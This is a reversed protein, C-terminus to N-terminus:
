TKTRKLFFIKDLQAVFIGTITVAIGVVTKVTISEEPLFYYATVATIVPVFNTFVGTKVVGLKEVVKIFLFFALLSAFIVLQLLTGILRIDPKVALFNKLGFGFFLPMFLLTGFIYQWTLITYPKYGASLKKIMVTYLIASVVALMMLAVGEPTEKFSFDAKLVMILVGAFSVAIGLINLWSVREKVILYAAVPSLVPILSIIVSAVTSSVYKMGFSEGLFYMFPEFFALLFLYKYDKKLPMIRLGFVFGALLLLVAAASVRLFVTTLPDYYYYVIKVWVFSFGWFMM